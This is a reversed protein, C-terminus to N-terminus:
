SLVKHKIKYDDKKLTQSNATPETLCLVHHVSFKLHSSQHFIVFTSKNSDLHTFYSVFVCVIDRM